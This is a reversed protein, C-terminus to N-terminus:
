FDYYPNQVLSKNLRLEEYYIPLYWSEPNILRKGIEIDDWTKYIRNVLYESGNLRSYRVLDFWRKGEFALERKREELIEFALNTKSISADLPTLEARTRVMNIADVSAAVEGLQNLAEAKILYIEALRYFIWNGDSLDIQRRKATSNGTGSYKWVINVSGISAFSKLKGRVADEATLNETWLTVTSTETNEVVTYAPAGGETSFWEVLDNLELLGANYQLEFISEKSNGPYFLNFWSAGEELQFVGSKIVKDAQDICKRYNEPDDQGIWLYVDALLSNVAYRTVRGHDELTNGYSEKTLKEAKVLDKVIQETVIASNSQPFYYGQDDTAYSSTILPIEKFTRILYFYSFARFFYCEGILGDLQEQTFNPDAKQATPGNEIISNARNILVYFEKWECSTNYQNIIQQNLEKSEDGSEVVLMDGRVEGWLIYYNLCEQMQDYCGMVAAKVDKETRWFEGKTLGDYPSRNLLDECSVFLIGIFLVAFALLFLKQFVRIRYKIKGM